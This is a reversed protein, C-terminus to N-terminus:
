KWPTGASLPTDNQNAALQRPPGPLDGGERPGLKTWHPPLHGRDSTTWVHSQADEGVRGADTASTATVM